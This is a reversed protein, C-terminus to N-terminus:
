SERQGHGLNRLGFVGATALGQHRLHLWVADGNQRGSRHRNTITIDLMDVPLVAVELVQAAKGLRFCHHYQNGSAFIALVHQEATLAIGLTFQPIAQAGPLFTRNAIETRIISERDVVDVFNQWPQDFATVPHIRRHAAVGFEVPM